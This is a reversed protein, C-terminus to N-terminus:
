KSKLSEYMLNLGSGFQELEGLQPCSRGVLTVPLTQDQVAGDRMGSSTSTWSLSEPDLSYHAAIPIFGQSLGLDRGEPAPQFVTLISLHKIAGAPDTRISVTAEPGQRLAGELLYPGEPPPLQIKLAVVPNAFSPNSTRRVILEAQIGDPTCLVPYRMAGSPDPEPIPKSAVELETLLLAADLFVGADLMGFLSSEMALRIEEMRKELSVSAGSVVADEQLPIESVAGDTSVGERATVPEVSALRDEAPVDLSSPGIDRSETSSRFGPSEWVKAVLILVIAAVASATLVATGRGRPQRM